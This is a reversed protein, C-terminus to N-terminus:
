YYGGISVLLTALITGVGTVILTVVASVDAYWQRNAMLTNEESEMEQVKVRVKDMLEKGKGTKIMEVAAPIGKGPEKTLGTDVTEKTFKLHANMWEDLEKLARKQKPNDDILGRLHKKTEDVKPFAVNYPLLYEKDDNVIFGRQGTEVDKLLSLLSELDEKVEHTHRVWHNTYMLFITSVFSLSGIVILIALTVGFGFSIKKAITM